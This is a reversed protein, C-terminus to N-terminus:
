FRRTFPGLAVYDPQIQLAKDLETESHTSIGMKINKKKLYPVDATSLDEQGLHIYDCNLDSATQWYDNVILQTQFANCLKQAQSIQAHLEDQSKNKLRLQVLKVGQPLLKQLWSVDDVILYFPDLPKM